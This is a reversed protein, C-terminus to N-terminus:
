RVAESALPALPLQQYYSRQMWRAHYEPRFNAVILLRTGALAEVIEALLEDSGGDFWHLDEVYTVTTTREGWLRTVRKVVAHLQHRRAEPDIRPCPNAPDAVGHFDFLLPLAERFSEDLLAIRGA